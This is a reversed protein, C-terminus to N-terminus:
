KIEIKKFLIMRRRENGNKQVTHADNGFIVRCEM